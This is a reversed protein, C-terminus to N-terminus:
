RILFVLVCMETDLTTRPTTHRVAATGAGPATEMRNDPAM